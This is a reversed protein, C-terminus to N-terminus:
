ALEFIYILDTQTISGDNISIKEGTLNYHSDCVLQEFDEKDLESLLSVAITMENNWLIEDM